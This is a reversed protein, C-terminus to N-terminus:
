VSAWLQDVRPLQGSERLLAPALLPREEQKVVLQYGTLLVQQAPVHEIVPAAHVHVVHLEHIQLVPPVLVPVEAHFVGELEDAFGGVLSM